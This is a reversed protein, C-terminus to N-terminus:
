QGTEEGPNSEWGDAPSDGKSGAAEAPIAGTMQM